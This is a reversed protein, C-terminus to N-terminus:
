KVVSLAYPRAATECPPTPLRHFFWPTNRRYECEKPKIRGRRAESVGTRGLPASANPKRPSLEEADPVINVDTTGSKIKSFREAPSLLFTGGRLKIILIIIIEACLDSREYGHDCVCAEREM